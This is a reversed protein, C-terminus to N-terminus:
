SRFRLAIGAGLLLFGAAAALPILRRRTRFRRRSRRLRRPLRLRAAARVRAGTGSRAGDGDHDAHVTDGRRGDRDDDRHVGQPRDARRGHEQRRHRDQPARAPCRLCEPREARDPPQRYDKGDVWIQYTPTLSARREDSSVATGPPTARPLGLVINFDPGQITAGEVLSWSRHDPLQELDARQIAALHSASGLDRRGSRLGGPFTDDKKM